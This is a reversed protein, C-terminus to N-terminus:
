RAVSSDTPSQSANNKIAEARAHAVQCFYDVHGDMEGCELHARAPCWLCLNVIPCVRCSELFEKRDSRRDRVKPVFNNWADALSGKRLDYVCEPDWLSSCLRFLGDYSVNFSENGAGCHFLHDCNRHEMEPMILEDCGKRLAEARAEDAQEIAVIEAATLREARIEDNRRPNGDYRLHLLPDFRFYDKTRERCFLAIEPFEHVNSRLAVAKLRVKVGGDQLLDLGKRFAAYSGPRRTVREYTEQSAGYVSVEIDRSPYKRFLKVHERTVLCANTFVSVLLGKRKLMLYLETFDKRLLPEGGTILCWLAGLSVAQAAIAGIEEVSLEHQQAERDGVPLNIYCHRCGNNCRATVELDFSLPLRKDKLKDWLPFQQIEICPVFSESVAINEKGCTPEDLQACLWFTWATERLFWNENKEM